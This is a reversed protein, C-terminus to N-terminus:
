TCMINDHYLSIYIIPKPKTNTNRIALPSTRRTGNTLKLRKLNYVWESSLLYGGGWCHVTHEGFIFGWVIDINVIFSYICICICVYLQIM